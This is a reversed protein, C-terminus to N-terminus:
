CADTVVVTHIRTVICGNTTDAHTVNTTVASCTDTGTVLARVDSDSPPTPNCGLDRGVPVTVDPATHDFTWSNTVTRTTSNTCADTVVVTHIRTVICGNTTDVHS